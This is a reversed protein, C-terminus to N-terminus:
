AAEDRLRGALMTVLSAADHGDLVGELERPDATRMAEWATRFARRAGTADGKAEMTLGLLLHPLPRGPELYAAQRFCREAEGHRGAGFADEGDRLLADADPAPMPVVPPATVATPACPTHRYAFVDGRRHLELDPGGPHLAESGGLLLWGGPRLATAARLLFRETDEPTLYILVNRCLVVECSGPEVPLPDHALRHRVAEVRERLADAVAWGGAVDQGHRARRDDDLGRLERESFVGAWTRRVAEPSIDSAVVRWDQRGTEALLMALSYPEQGNACGASWVTVSGPAEAFVTALLEFQSEHRFFSSEQVTVADLLADMRATDGALSSVLESVPVGLGAAVDRLCRELRGRSPEEFRFGTRSALIAAARDVHAPTPRM